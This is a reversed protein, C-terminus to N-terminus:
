SRLASVVLPRGAAAQAVVILGLAGTLALAAASTGHAAAVPLALAGVLSGFITTVLLSRTRGRTVLLHRGTVTELSWFLFFVGLMMMTGPSPTLDEGFLLRCVTPGLLTLVLLGAVGLASHLILSRTLRRVFTIGDAEAVWAQLANSLAAIVTAGFTTLRYGTNFLAVTQPTGTLGVLASSGVTYAGAALETGLASANAVVGRLGGRLCGPHRRGRTHRAYFHAYAALSSCLLFLPYLVLLGTAASAVAGGISGVFRPAVDAWLLLGPRGTGVAYWAPSFGVLATSMAMLSSLATNDSAPILAAIAVVAPLTVAAAAIRAALSSLLLPVRGAPDRAVLAPGNVNWGAGVVLGGLGGVSQGIAIAAWEEVTAARALIPLALLPSLASVASLGGFGVLRTLLPRGSGSM